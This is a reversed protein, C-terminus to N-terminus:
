LLCMGYCCECREFFLVKMTVVSSSSSMLKGFSIALPAPSLKLLIFSFDVGENSMLPAM